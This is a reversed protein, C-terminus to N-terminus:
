DRTKKSEKMIGMVSVVASLGQFVAAIYQQKAATLYILILHAVLYTSWGNRNSKSALFYTAWSALLASIAELLTFGGKFTIFTIWIAILSLVVTAVIRANKSIAQHSFYGYLMLFSFGIQVVAYVTFGILFFYIVFFIGALFGLMWGSRKGLYLFLKNAFGFVGSLIQFILLAM